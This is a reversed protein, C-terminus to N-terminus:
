ETLMQQIQGLDEQVCVVENVPMPLAKPPVVSSAGVPWTERAVYTVTNLTVCAESRGVDPGDVPASEGTTVMSLVRAPTVYVIAHPAIYIPQGSPHTLALLGPGAQAVAALSLSAAMLAASIFRRHRFPM